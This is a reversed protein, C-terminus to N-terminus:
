KKPPVPLEEGVVGKDASKMKKLRIKMAKEKQKIAKDRKKMLDLQDKSVPGQDLAKGKVASKGQNAPPILANEEGAAMATTALLGSLLIALSLVIIKKM